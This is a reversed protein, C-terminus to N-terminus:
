PKWLQQPHHCEAIWIFIEKRGKNIVFCIQKGEPKSNRLGEPFRKRLYIEIYNLWSQHQPTSPWNNGRQGELHRMVSANMQWFNSHKLCQALYHFDRNWFQKCVSPLFVLFFDIQYATFSVWLLISPNCLLFCSFKEQSFLLTEYLLLFNLQSNFSLFSNIMPFICSLTCLGSVVQFENM